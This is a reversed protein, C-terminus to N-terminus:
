IYRFLRFSLLIRKIRFMKPELALRYIGELGIKQLFIPARKYEGAVMDFTGGVGIALRIGLLELQKRNDDIWRDQKVAGFGVLLYYPFFQRITGFIQDNLQRAFPYESHPPSYGCIVLGPYRRRLIEIATANSDSMGGLLFVRQNNKQARECIHYVLESGPLKEIEVNWARIKALAFPIQGDFTSINNNVIQRFSSCENARVIYEANVTVIQSLGEREEFVDKLTLGRFTIGALELM